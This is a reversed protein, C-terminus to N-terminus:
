LQRSTLNRSVDQFCGIDQLSAYFPHGKQHLKASYEIELLMNVCELLWGTFTSRFHFIQM